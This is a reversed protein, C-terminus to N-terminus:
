GLGIKGRRSGRDLELEAGGNVAGTPVRIFIKGFRM